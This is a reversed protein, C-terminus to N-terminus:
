VVILHVLFLSIVTTPCLVRIGPSCCGTLMEINEKLEQFVAECTPSYKIFNTIEHTMDLTDRTLKTEKITDSAALSISHRYCHFYVGRQAEDLISKAVGLSSGKM